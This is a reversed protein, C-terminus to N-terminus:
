RSGAFKITAVGVVGPAIPGEVKRDRAIANLITMNAELVTKGTAPDFLKVEGAAVAKVLVMLDQVQASWTTRDALGEVKAEPAAKAVQIPVAALAAATAKPAVTVPAAEIEAAAEPAGADRAQQALRRQQEVADDQLKKLADKRLQEKAEEAKRLEIVRLRDQERKWDSMIAQLHVAAAALGAADRARKKLGVAEKHAVNAAAIMPDFIEDAQKERKKLELLYQGAVQFDDPGAIAFRMISAAFGGEQVKFAEVLEQTM